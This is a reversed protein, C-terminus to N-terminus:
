NEKRSRVSNAIFVLGIIMAIPLALSPFEPTLIPKGSIDKTVTTTGLLVGDGFVDLHLVYTGSITDAPPTIAVNFEKTSGWAVDNYEPPTVVVWGAYAPERVNLTLTDIPASTLENIKAVIEDAVGADSYIFYAGDTMEAEYQFARTPDGGPSSCDVAVVSIHADALSQVVPAFDLDDATFMVEDRGPDGGYSATLTYPAPLTTGSPQAHPVNDGFLVVIKKADARWTFNHESEYLARVYNQPGDAGGSAHMTNLADTVDSTVSTLDQDTKWAYDPPAGYTNSYGYSNYAHPYDVFSGVGFNTDPIDSRVDAMIGDAKIAMQQIQGGMSGTSDFVFVVDGKPATEPLTVTILDRETEGANLKATITLPEVILAMVSVPMTSILLLCILLITTLKKM